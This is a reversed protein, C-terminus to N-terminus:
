NNYDNIIDYFVNESIIEIDNGKLKYAEAKKQKLSKGNKIAKCYDNNGLILFNTDKTVTDRNYGGMNAITQMAEKRIMKELVGTFVVEKEFFPNDENINEKNVTIDKAKVTNKRKKMELVFNDFTTYKQIISEQIKLFIKYTSSCDDLARHQNDIDINYFKILDVLRNHKLEKNLKRSLRMTDIFDNTLYKNLNKLCSDYLFNIDFNVNHGVLIDDDIFDLFKVLVTDILPANKIMENTIGTLETIFEDIYNDTYILTKFSDIIENNRIKLAGIEIISDYKPDLGTTEIDIITYDKEIKILSEGKHERNLKNKDIIELNM